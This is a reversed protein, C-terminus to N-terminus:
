HSPGGAPVRLSTPALIADVHLRPATVGTEGYVAESALEHARILAGFEVAESGLASQVLHPIAPVRISANVARQLAGIMLQGARSLGGGIVVVDPDVVLSLAAIGPALVDVFRMLEAEAEADGKLVRAVVEEASGGSSWQINGAEDTSVREFVLYGAEGSAHHRGRHVKGDVILSISIRHGVQLYVVNEALSSAGLHHEAMSAMRADNELAVPCGFREAIRGAIDVSNWAPLMYSLAVRGDAGVIGSVGIGIGRLQERELEVRDLLLDLLRFVADLTQGGGLEPDLVLEDSAVIDGALDAVIARVVHGGVDVGAVYGAASRFAFLKAPRGSERGGGVSEAEVAALGRDLLVNLSADVTPRSLGTAKALQAITMAGEDRLAIACAIEVKKL